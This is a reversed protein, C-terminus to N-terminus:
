RRGFQYRYALLRAENPETLANFARAVCCKIWPWLDNKKEEDPADKAKEEPTHPVVRFELSPSHCPMQHHFSLRRYLGETRLSVGDPLPSISLVPPDGIANYQSDDFNPSPSCRSVSESGM